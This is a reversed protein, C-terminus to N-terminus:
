KETALEPAAEVASSYHDVPKGPKLSRAASDASVPPFVVYEMFGLGLKERNVNGRNSNDRNANEDSANGTKNNSSIVGPNARL